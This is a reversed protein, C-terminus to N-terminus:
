CPKKINDSNYPSYKSIGNEYRYKAIAIIIGITALISLGVELYVM